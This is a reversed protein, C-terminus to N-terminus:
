LAVLDRIHRLLQEQGVGSKEILGVVSGKLRQRDEETLDKATVVIIPVSHWAPEKRVESVFEFGDMVPMMLDLLVLSPTEEALQELGERGNTAEVVRWGAPELARRAMARVEANDEVVLVRREAAADAYRELLALLQEREFPKTMFDTAGLAAGIDREETMTVMIVPIDRTDPDSKLRRLVQWGDMSPMVVDLTIASPRLTRALRLAEQGDSATVIRYGAPQLMRGILDLANPDDDIALITHERGPEAPRPAAGAEAAEAVVAGEEVTTAMEARVPLKITFTSGEGQTSAVEVDGGMLQCFRRTIALGLGTGGFNRTTSKDAQSFEEFITGLKEPPIGIGTDSVTFVVWERGAASAARAALTIDGEETFKAANSLLNFLGQRVKTLDARMAALAPDIEVELRNHKKQVLSDVTAAVEEIMPRIEFTELYIDMRGAEIKSLDLVDNILALLHNGAANIKKLDEATEVNGEDEADEALMESYGIIANMPTRLEHSMNALFSSKATNAAEAAQRAVELADNTSALAGTQERIVRAIRIALFGFALAIVPAVILLTQWAALLQAQARETLEDGLRNAAGRLGHQASRVEAFMVEVQDELSRREALLAQRAVAAGYLGGDGPVITQHAADNVFGRGFLAVEYAVIAAEDIPLPQGDDATPKRVERRLRALSSTFRNDKLDTLRDADRESALKESLLALDALEGNIASMRATSDMGSIIEDALARGAAGRTERYKRVAVVRALRQRGEASAVSARIRHLAEDAGARASDLAREDLAIRKSWGRCADRLKALATLETELQSLQAETAADEIEGRFGRIVGGLHDLPDRESEVAAVDPATGSAQGASVESLVTTLQARVHALESEAATVLQALESRVRDIADREREVRQLTWGFVGLAVAGGLLGLGALLWVQRAAARGTRDSVDRDV